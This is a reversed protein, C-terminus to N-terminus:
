RARSQSSAPRSSRSCGRPSRRSLGARGGISGARPVSRACCRYPLRARTRETNDTVTHRRSRILEVDGDTNGIVVNGSITDDRGSRVSIGPGGNDTVRQRPFGLRALALGLLVYMPLSAMAVFRMQFSFGAFVALLTFVRDRAFDLTLGCGTTSFDERLTEKM